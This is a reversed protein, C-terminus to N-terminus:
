VLVARACSESAQRLDVMSRCITYKAMEAAFRSDVFREKTVQRAIYAEVEATTNDGVSRVTAKRSFGDFRVCLPEFRM